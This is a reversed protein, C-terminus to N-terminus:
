GKQNNLLKHVTRLVGDHNNDAVAIHKAVRKVASGGNPMAYSQTTLKLMSVDNGGDGFVIVDDFDLHWDSLLQQLAWGKNIGPNTLDMSGNGSPTVVLQNGFKANLQHVAEQIEDDSVLFSIQFFQDDPLQDFNKVLQHTPYYFSLHKITQQSADQPFYGCHHGSLVPEIQMEHVLYDVVKHVLNNDLTKTLIEQGQSVIEAGNEAIFTLQKQQDESFYQLLCELPDGSAVVVHMNTDNAIELLRQLSDQNFHKHDDLFTGDMDFTVVKFPLAM